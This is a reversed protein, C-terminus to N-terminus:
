GVEDALVLPIEATLRTGKGPPSAIRLTGGLAEVRDALGQLGSGRSADAGGSGDDAVVVVLRGDLTAVQLEARGASAYKAVNALGEACVFYATAELPQPLRGVRVDLTVPLPARRALAALAGSLGAEVLERPHLGRALEHLDDLTSALQERARGLHETSPLGALTAGLGALRREPGERLRGELAERERDAALLLRRRSAILEGAQARVEAQLAVNSASLRTASAVAEVLAPDRLITADHVLVAFPVGEREVRTASRGSGPQPLSLPGSADDFYAGAAASWFGVELTPDGLARALRDRLTGSRTEGLEVVLDAVAAAAPGRLRASLGAAIAILVAEYALLAPDAADGAGVALRAAAGGALVAGLAAAAQLAILRSRRASGTAVVYGRAAVTVLALAFVITGAESQMVPEMLAAIYGAAVAVLDLRSRPRLGPYALILHVLPGRHLYLLEASFNGLFWTVGTAALLTGADPADWREWALWGCAIFTLGVALDPLWRGPEDWAFAASESAVALALAAPWVLLGVRRM